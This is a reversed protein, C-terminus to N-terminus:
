HKIVREEGYDADCTDVDGTLQQYMRKWYGDGKIRKRSEEVAQDYGAIEWEKWERIEM